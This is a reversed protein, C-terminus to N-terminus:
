DRFRRSKVMESMYGKYLRFNRAEYFESASNRKSYVMEKLMKELQEKVPTDNELKREERATFEDDEV